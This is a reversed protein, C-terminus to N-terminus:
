AVVRGAPPAVQVSALFEHAFTRLDAWDTYEYDRTTDTDGAHKAAIRKMMWRTFWGYKTYLLAGAVSKLRAAEWGCSEVFKQMLDSVAKRASQSSDAAMLSVSLFAAHKGRLQSAHRRIWTQVPRQYRGAHLSAAVIVATYDDPGPTKRSAQFVDAKAGAGRFAIALQTAVKRTQGETTGYVVLIRTMTVARDVM